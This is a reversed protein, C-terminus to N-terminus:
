GSAWLWILYLLVLILPPYVGPNGAFVFEFWGPPEFKYENVEWPTEDPPPEEPADTMARYLGSRGGRGRAEALATM